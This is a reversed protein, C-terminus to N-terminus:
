LQHALEGRLLLSEPLQDDFVLLPQISNHPSFHLGMFIRIIDQLISKNFDEPM